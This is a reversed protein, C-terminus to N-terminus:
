VPWYSKVGSLKLLQKDFSALKSKQSYSVILCDAMDLGSVAFLDVAKRLPKSVGINQLALLFHFYELVKEKEFNYQGELVYELEPFVVDPIFIKKENELLTKVKAAQDLVDNTFFRILSNTDLVIM